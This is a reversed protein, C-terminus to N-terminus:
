RRKPVTDGSSPAIGADLITVLNPHFLHSTARMEREFRQQFEGDALGAEALRRVDIVKIAVPRSLSPDFADYVVGMGGRGLEGRIEYRGIREPLEFLVSLAGDRIAARRKPDLGAKM